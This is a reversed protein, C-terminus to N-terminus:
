IGKSKSNRRAEKKTASNSRSRRSGSKKSGSLISDEDGGKKENDFNNPKIPHNSEDMKDTQKENLDGGASNMPRQCCGGM